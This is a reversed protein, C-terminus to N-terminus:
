AGNPRPPSRCPGAFVGPMRWTVSGLEEDRKHVRVRGARVSARSGPTTLHLVQTDPDSALVRRRVEGLQREDPLCVGAHSCRTCRPDDELPQSATGATLLAATRATHSRALALEDPGIPVPVRKRHETFYVAAGAVAVGTERLAAMQLALQVVM